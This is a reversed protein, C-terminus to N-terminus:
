VDALGAAAVIIRRGVTGAVHGADLKYAFCDSFSRVDVGAHGLADVEPQGRQVGHAGRGEEQGGLRGIGFQHANEGFEAGVRLEVVGIVRRRQHGGGAEARAGRAFVRARLGLDSSAM